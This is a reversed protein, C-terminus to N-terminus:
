VPATTTALSIDRAIAQVYQSPDWPCRIRKRTPQLDNPMHNGCFDFGPKAEFKCTRKKSDLYYQCKQMKVQRKSIPFDIFLVNAMSRLM